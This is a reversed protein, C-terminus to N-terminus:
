DDTVRKFCGLFYLATLQLLISFSIILISYRSLVEILTIPFILALVGAGITATCIPAGVGCVQLASIGIATAIISVMSTKYTKALIIREKINNVICTMTLAFVIM